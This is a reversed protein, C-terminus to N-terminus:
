PNPAASGTMGGIMAVAMAARSGGAVLWCLLCTLWARWGRLQATAYLGIIVVAWFWIRFPDLATLGGWVAAALKPDTQELPVLLPTLRALSTDVELTRLQLMLALKVLLRVVDIFGAFVCITLLTHWEPKRGTLAVAGYLVAAVVLVSALAQVPEAAVVQIRRVLKEFAGKKYEREYTERLASREVVDRQQSEIVAIRERVQRDVERSILGTQVTAYGILTVATLLVVLPWKYATVDEVRLFLRRPALLASPIDLV